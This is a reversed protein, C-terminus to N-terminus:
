WEIDGHEKQIRRYIKYLSLYYNAVGNAIERIEAGSYKEFGPIGKHLDIFKQIQEPRLEM